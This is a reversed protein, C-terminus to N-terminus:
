GRKAFMIDSETERAVQIIYIIKMNLICFTFNQKNTAYNKCMLILYSHAFLILILVRHCTLM